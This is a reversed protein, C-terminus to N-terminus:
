GFVQTLPTAQNGVFFPRGGSGHIRKELPLGMAYGMTAHLESVGVVDDVNRRGKEDTSGIVQGGTIGGGAIMASFAQPHHDRGGNKSIVPTRGFETTLVVMTSDLMGRAALDNLLSAVCTDMHTALDEGLEFSNHMGDWSRDFSVEVYRIGKEVLRRALLCGQAFRGRGYRDRLEKPERSLDFAEAGVGDFFKVTTDYFESYADVQKHPYRSEYDKAFMKALKIRKDFQSKPVKPLLDKIGKEPDGIPFPSHDPPFFGPGPNAGNIIVSGPLERTKSGLFYQAWSGFQPHSTGPRQKFGTHMSYTASQHDGTKTAMSRIIAMKDALQALNPLHNAFQIGDVNTNIPVTAGKVESDTKPDFTDLHSMGGGMYLFIVNECQVPRLPLQVSPRGEARAALPAFVSVGLSTKAVSELFRRRSLEDMNNAFKKM